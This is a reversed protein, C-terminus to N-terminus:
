RFFFGSRMGVSQVGGGEVECINMAQLFFSFLIMAFINCLELLGPMKGKSVLFNVDEKGIMKRMNKMLWLPIDFASSFKSWKLM